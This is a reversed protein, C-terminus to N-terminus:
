WRGPETLLPLLRQFQIPSTMGDTSSGPPGVTVFNYTGNLHINYTSTTYGHDNWNNIAWTTGGDLSLRYGDDGGVKLIYDGDAFSQTLKYRM